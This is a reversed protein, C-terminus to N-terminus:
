AVAKQKFESIINKLSNDLRYGEFEVVFGGLLTPDLKVELECSCNFREKLLKEVAKLEKAGPKSAFTVEAKIINQAKIILSQYAEVVAKLLTFNNDRLLLVLLNNATTHPKFKLATFVKELLERKNNLSTVPSNLIKVLDANSYLIEVLQKLGQLIAEYLQPDNEGHTFIISAYKQVLLKM